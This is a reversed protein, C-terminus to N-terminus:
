KIKLFTVIENHIVDIDKTADITLDWFMSDYSQSVKRLTDLNEFISEIKQKGKAREKIRKMSDEPSIKLYIKIVHTAWLYYNYLYEVSSELQFIFQPNVDFANAYAEMSPTYRTCVVSEWTSIIPHIEKKLHEIYNSAMLLQFSEENINKGENICSKVIKWTYNDYFPLRTKHFWFDKKLLDAQTDKGCGDIWEIVIFLWNM